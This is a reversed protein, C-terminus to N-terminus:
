TGSYKAAMPGWPCPGDIVTVAPGWGPVFSAGMLGTYAWGLFILSCLLSSEVELGPPDPMHCCCEQPIRDPGAAKGGRHIGAVELYLMHATRQYLWMSPGPRGGEQSPFSNAPVASVWTLLKERRSMKVKYCPGTTTGKRPFPSMGPQSSRIGDRTVFLVPCTWPCLALSPFLWDTPGGPGCPNGSMLTDLSM